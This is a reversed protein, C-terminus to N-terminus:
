RTLLIGLFIAILFMGGYFGLTMWRSMGEFEVTNNRRRKRRSRRKMRWAYEEPPLWSKRGTSDTYELYGQEKYFAARTEDQIRAIEADRARQSHKSDKRETRGKQREVRELRQQHTEQLEERFRQAIEERESESLAVM